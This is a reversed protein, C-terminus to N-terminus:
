LYQFSERPRFTFLDLHYVCRKMFYNYYNELPRVVGYENAVMVKWLQNYNKILSYFFKCTMSLRVLAVGSCKELIGVLVEEPFKSFNGKEPLKTPKRLLNGM